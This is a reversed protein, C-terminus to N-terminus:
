ALVHCSSAKIVLYVKVEPQLGLADAAQATVRVKVSVGCHVRLDVEAGGRVM